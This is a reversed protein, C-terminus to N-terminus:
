RPPEIPVLELGRLRAGARADADEVSAPADRGLLRVTGDDCGAALVAGGPAFAIARVPSGLRAVALPEGRAADWFRVTRDDGGCALLRGDPSFALARPTGGEGELSFLLAGTRADFVRVGRDYSATAVARVDPSFVIATLAAHGSSRDIPQPLAIGHPMRARAEYIRARGQAGCVGLLAGDSSFALGTVEGPPLIELGTPKGDFTM